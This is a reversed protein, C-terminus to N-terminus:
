VQTKKAKELREGIPLVAVGIRVKTQYMYRASTNVCMHACLHTRAVPVVVSFVIVVTIVIIVVIAIVAVILVAVATSTVFPWPSVSSRLLSWLSLHNSVVCLM